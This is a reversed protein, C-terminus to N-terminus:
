RRRQDVAFASRGASLLSLQGPSCCLEALTMVRRRRRVGLWLM